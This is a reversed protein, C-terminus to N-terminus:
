VKNQEDFGSVPINRPRICLQFTQWGQLEAGECWGGGGGRGRAPGPEVALSSTRLTGIGGAVRM